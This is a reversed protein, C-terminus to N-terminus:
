SLASELLACAEGLRPGRMLALAERVVDAPVMTPEIDGHWNVMRVDMFGLRGGGETRPRLFVFREIPSTPHIDHVFAPLNSMVQIINDMTAVLDPNLHEPPQSVFEPGYKMHGREPVIEIPTNRPDYYESVHVFVCTNDDSILYSIYLPYTAHALLNM